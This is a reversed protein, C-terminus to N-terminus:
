DDKDTRAAVIARADDKSDVVEIKGIRCSQMRRSSMRDRYVIEGFGDSCIRSTTDKLAIVMANRLNICRNRM